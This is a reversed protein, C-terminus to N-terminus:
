ELITKTFLKEFDNAKIRFGTGHDHTKGYTRLNEPNHYAGIRIDIMITGNEILDIFKEFSPNHLLEVKKFYFHEKENIIKTDATVYAVKKLKSEIIKRLVPFSYYVNESLIEKSLFDRVLIIIKENQRDVKVKFEYTSELTNFRDGFISTHLKKLGRYETYETGFKERLYTNASRPYTPAKTFLTVYSNSNSRQSKIEIDGFDAEPLNDEKKELYDEFTKGIGTNNSRTSELFGKAKIIKFKKKFEDLYESEFKM